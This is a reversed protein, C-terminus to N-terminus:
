FRKFHIITVYDIRTQYLVLNIIVVKKSPHTTQEVKLSVNFSYKYSTPVLYRLNVETYDYM